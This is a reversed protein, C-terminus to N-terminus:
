GASVIRVKECSVLEVGPHKQNFTVRDQGTGCNISMSPDSYVVVIDDDESGAVVRDRYNAFIRDAGPGGTIVDRATGRADDLLDAGSQGFLRDGAKGGYVKDPGSGGYLLDSGPGGKVTDTGGAANVLDNGALASIVDRVPTGTLNDNGPTGSISRASAPALSSATLAVVTILTALAPVRRM